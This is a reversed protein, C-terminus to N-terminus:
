FLVLIHVELNFVMKNTSRYKQRFFFHIKRFYLRKQRFIVEEFIRM